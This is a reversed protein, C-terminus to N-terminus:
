VNSENKYRELAKKLDEASIHYVEGVNNFAEVIRDFEYPDIITTPCEIALKGLGIAENHTYGLLEFDKVYEEMSLDCGFHM